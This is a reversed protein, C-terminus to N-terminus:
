DSEPALDSRRARSSWWALAALALARAFVAAAFASRWPSHPANADGAWRLGSVFLANDRVQEADLRLRPGRAYLRNQPDKALM